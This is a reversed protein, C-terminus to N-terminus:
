WVAAGDIDAAEKAGLDRLAAIAERHMCDRTGWQDCKPCGKHKEKYVQACMMPTYGHKDLGDLHAGAAVLEKMVEINGQDAAWHLPTRHFIDKCHVDAKNEILYKVIFPHDYFGQACKHIPKMNQPFNADIEAGKDFYVQVGQEHGNICAWGFQNDIGRESVPLEEEPDQEAADEAPADKTAEAAMAAGDKAAVAQLDKLEKKLEAAKHYDEATVAAQIDAELARAKNAVDDAADEAAPRSAKLPTLGKKLEAAKHYDEAGVADQIKKELEAIQAAMNRRGCGM